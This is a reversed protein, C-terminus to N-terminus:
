TSDQGLDVPRRRNFCERVRGHEGFLHAGRGLLSKGGPFEAIETHTRPSPATCRTAGANRREAAPLDLNRSKDGGAVAITLNGFGEDNRGLRDIVMDPVDECLEANPVSRLEGGLDSARHRHTIRGIIRCRSPGLMPGNPRPPRGATPLEVM